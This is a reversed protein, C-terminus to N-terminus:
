GEKKPEEKKPPPGARAGTAVVIVGITIIMLIILGVTVITDESLGGINIGGGAPFFFDMLGSTVFLAVGIILGIVLAGVGLRSGLKDSLWDTMGDPLFMSTVMLGAAIVMTVSLSQVFFPILKAEIDIGMIIPASWILFAAGMSVVANVAVNKESPGFIQSKRILGYFIAFSILFPLLFKFFGLERM